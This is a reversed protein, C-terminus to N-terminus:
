AAQITDVIEQIPTESKVLYQQAGLEKARQGDEEQALNSTIIVPINQWNQNAKLKELVEFGNMEPMIIDLLIVDPEFGEELVRFVENGNEAFRVELDTDKMKTVYVKNLFTDDEAILVRQAM